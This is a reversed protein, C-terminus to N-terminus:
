YCQTTLVDTENISISLRVDVPKGAIFRQGIMYRAFM